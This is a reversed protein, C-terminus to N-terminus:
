QSKLSVSAGAYVSGTSSKGDCISLEIIQIVLTRNNIDLGGTPITCSFEGIEMSQGVVLSENIDVEEGFIRSGHDTSNMTGFALSIVKRDSECKLDPLEEKSQYKITGGKCKILIRDKYVYYVGSMSTVIAYFHSRLSSISFSSSATWEESVTKTSPQNNNSKAEREVQNATSSIKVTDRITDILHVRKTTPLTTDSKVLRNIGSDKPQSSILQSNSRNSFYIYAVLALICGMIILGASLFKNNKNNVPRNAYNTEKSENALKKGVSQYLRAFANQNFASDSLSVIQVMGFGIPPETSDFRVPILVNRNLAIRAEDKVNRSKVSLSSWIVIVAKALGLQDEIQTDFDDGGLLDHDWWVTWGQSALKQAILQAKGRDERKYSIFIDAM